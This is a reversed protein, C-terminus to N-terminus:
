KKAKEVNCKCFRESFQFCHMYKLSKGVDHVHIFCAFCERIPPLGEINNACDRANSRFPSIPM